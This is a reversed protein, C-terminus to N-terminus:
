RPARTVLVDQNDGDVETAYRWQGFSGWDMHNNQREFLPPM